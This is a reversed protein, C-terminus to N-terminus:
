GGYIFRGCSPCRYIQLPSRATQRESATLGTGCASCSDDNITAVAVGRKFKRLRDYDALTASDIQQLVASREVLLREKLASLMSCEGSLVANESTVIGQIQGLQKKAAELKTQAEEVAMMADLQQDEVAAILKKLSAVEHQLDQLEKPVKVKGGYLASESQELKMRKGAAEQELRSLHSQAAKLNALSTEVQSQAQAVRDDANLRTQIESIRANGQDIQTDIKQLQFLHFSLNM